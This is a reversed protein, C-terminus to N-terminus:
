FLQYIDAVVRLRLHLLSVLCLACDSEHGMTLIQQCELPTDTGTLVCDEADPINASFSSCGGGIVGNQTWQRLGRGETDLM